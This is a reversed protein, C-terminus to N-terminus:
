IFLTGIVLIEEKKMLIIQMHCYQDNLHKRTCSICMQNGKLYIYVRDSFWSETNKYERSKNYYFRITGAM